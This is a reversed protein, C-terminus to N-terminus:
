LVMVYWCRVVIKVDTYVCVYVSLVCVCVGSGWVHAVGVCVSACTSLKNSSLDCGQLKRLKSLSSPITGDPMVFLMIMNVYKGLLMDVMRRHRSSRM